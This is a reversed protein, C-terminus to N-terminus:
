SQSHSQDPNLPVESESAHKFSLTGDEGDELDSDSFYGYDGASEEESIPNKLGKLQPEAFNGCFVVFQSHLAQVPIQHLPVGM